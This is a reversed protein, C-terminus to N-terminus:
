TSSRKNKLAKRLLSDKCPVDLLINKKLKGQLKKEGFLLRCHCSAITVLCIVDDEAAQVSRLTKASFVYGTFIILPANSFFLHLFAMGVGFSFSSQV